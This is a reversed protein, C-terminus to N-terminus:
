HGGPRQEGARASYGDWKAGSRGGHGWSGHKRQSRTGTVASEAGTQPEEARTDETQGTTTRGTDVDVDSRGGSAITGPGELVGATVAGLLASYAADEFNGDYEVDHLLSKFAPELLEQLGEELGESAM